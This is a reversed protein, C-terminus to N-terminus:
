VTLENESEINIIEHLLKQLVAAFVAIVLSAFIPVMGMIILEPTDSVEAAIYVFPAILIYLVSFLFASLKIKQLASVSLGSFADDRDIYNLLRFSQYLASLYPLVSLLAGISIPYLMLAYDSNVPNRLLFSIMVVTGTLVPLAMCVLATKLFLSLGRKM